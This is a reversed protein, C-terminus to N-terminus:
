ANVVFEPSCVALTFFQPLDSKANTLATFTRPSFELIGLLDKIYTIRQEPAITSLATFDIQKSLGTAFSIRFQASASSLWAEDTPWGGVNPPYFPLQAMKQLAGLIFNRNSLKSPQLSFARCVAIFWEVPQRVVSYRPDSLAGNLVLASIVPAVERQSFAQAARIKADRPLSSSIFRYWLRDSIFDACESKSLILDIAGDGDLPSNVGFVKIPDFDHRKPNFTVEGTSRVTQYGTFARAIAKVDDETYMNVGLTFLEMFERSLNENPAGKVNDNGDLWIQLAGDHFMEHSMTRFNGLANRRLTENQKFMPLPFNVKDLSTAWHGHWFWVMRETLPNKALAMRDLWWFILAVGQAKLDQTFKESAAKNSQSPRPGLDTFTPPQLLNLRPDSESVNFIKAATNKFGDQLAQSFQGPTPGFNFRAFLRSIELRQSEM